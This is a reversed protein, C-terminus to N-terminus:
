TKCPIADSSSIGAKRETKGCTEFYKFYIKIADYKKLGATSWSGSTFNPLDLSGQIFIADLNEEITINNGIDYIQDRIVLKHGPYKTAM